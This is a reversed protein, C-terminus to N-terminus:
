NWCPVISAKTLHLCCNTCQYKLELMTRNLCYIIDPQNSNNACKLELMTRNLCGSTGPTNVEVVYKLELMTRNLCSENVFIVRNLELIEIGVHYSQPQVQFLARLSPLLWKLELM